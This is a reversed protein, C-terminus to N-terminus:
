LSVLYDRNLINKAPYSNKTLFIM